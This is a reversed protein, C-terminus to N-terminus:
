LLASESSTARQCKRSMPRQQDGVANMVSWHNVGQRSHNCGSLSLREERLPMVFSATYVTCLIQLPTDEKWLFYIIARQSEVAEEVSVALSFLSLDICEYTVCLWHSNAEIVIPQNGRIDDYVCRANCDRVCTVVGYERRGRVEPVGSTLTPSCERTVLQDLDSSISVLAALIVV